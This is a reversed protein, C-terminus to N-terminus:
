LRNAITAIHRRFACTPRASMVSPLMWRLGFLLPSSSTCFYLTFDTKNDVCGSLISMFLMEKKSMFFSSPLGRMTKINKILKRRNTRWQPCPLWRIDCIKTVLEPIGYTYSLLHSIKFNKVLVFFCTGVEFLFTLNIGYFLQRIQSTGLM